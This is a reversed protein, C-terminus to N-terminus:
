IMAPHQHPGGHREGNKVAGRYRLARTRAVGQSVADLHRSSSLEPPVATQPYGLVVAHGPHGSRGGRNDESVKGRHRSADPESGPTHHQWIM